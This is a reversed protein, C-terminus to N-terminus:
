RRLNATTKKTTVEDLRARHGSGRMVMPRAVAKYLVGGRPHATTWQRPALHLVSPEGQAPSEMLIDTFVYLPRGLEWGWPATGDAGSDHHHRTGKQRWDGSSHQGKMIYIYIYIYISQHLYKSMIVKVFMGQCVYTSVLIKVFM